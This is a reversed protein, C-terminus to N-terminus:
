FDDRDPSLRNGEQVDGPASAMFGRLRYVVQGALHNLMVASRNMAASGPLWRLIWAGETHSYDAPFGTPAPVVDLGQQTFVTMLRPMHNADSVLLIRTVGEPKLLAASFTANDQSNESRGEIWRVPTQFDRQAAEAMTEAESKDTALPRGGSVLLPLGTRRHLFVAYHLRALSTSGIVDGGYEVARPYLGGGAVVIARPPDDAQMLADVQEPALAPLPSLAQYLGDAVVPLSFAWFSALGLFLGARGAVRRLSFAAHPRGSSTFGTNDKRQWPRWLLLGTMALLLPGIPPFLLSKLIAKCLFLVSM